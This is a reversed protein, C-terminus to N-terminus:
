DESVELNRELQKALSDCYVPECYEENRKRRLSCYRTRGMRMNDLHDKRIFGFVIGVRENQEKATDSVIQSILEKLDVVSVEMSTRGSNIARHMDAQLFMVTKNVTM